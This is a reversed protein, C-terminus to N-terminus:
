MKNCHLIDMMQLKLFFHFQWECCQVFTTLKFVAAFMFVNVCTGSGGGVLIVAPSLTIHFHRVKNIEKEM